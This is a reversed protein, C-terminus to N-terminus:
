YKYKRWFWKIIEESIVTLFALPFIVLWNLLPLPALQFLNALPPTYILIFNLILSTLVAILLYKNSWISVKFFSRRESRTNYANLLECILLTSFVFTRPLYLEPANKPLIRWTPAYVCLAFYYLSLSIITIVIARTIVSIFLRSNIINEKPNRPQRLMIDPEYPESSLALAPFGDTMLNIWLIQIAILPLPLDILIGVFILLIEAINCSILFSIFKKMNDFIGRGEEVASVISAFNDDTLIMSSAEKSVDTGTIGMAVGIDAKKLAPADNVGDGTMAVIEGRKQLADVIRLKHEPAVRAYVHSQLLEEDNMKNIEAGLIIIEESNIIELEHAIAKATTAQDGTIMKVDIGAKKSIEIATKAEPRAPDIIGVLGIFILDKEIEEPKCDYNESDCFDYATALVRLAQNAMINNADLIKDKDDQTLDRINEDILIRNCLNLVIEPAGKMYLFEKEKLKDEVIVSMRKRNSDFFYEILREYRKETEEKLFPFIKEGLVVFAGETPDGEIVYNGKEDKILSANNCLYGALVHEKLVIDDQIINEKNYKDIIKGKPEYGEGSVEYSKHNFFLQKITMQNKTLTGTKDTCITTTSGLTEIAPLKRIIANRKSMRQVGLALTTTVVVPLGEPIAAVALSISIIFSNIISENRFVRIFFIIISICLIIIGIQKGFRKLKKNLPTEMEVQTQLLEAIKGVETNMGTGTVVFQGRGNTVITSSFVINKQDNVPIEGKDGLLVNSTKEIPVSEGTLASEDIYLNTDKIIRGDAPVKDGTEIYIIDGPVILLSSVEKKIGSRKVLAKLAGIERLADIAAEARYEQIFGLIANALIIIWIILSETLEGVFASILAAFVLVIVLFDKFQSLFLIFKSRKRKERLENKGYIALRSEAEEDPLGDLSTKFINFVEHAQKTYLKDLSEIM